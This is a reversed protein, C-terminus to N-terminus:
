DLIITPDLTAPLRQSAVIDRNIVSRIDPSSVDEGIALKAAPDGIIVYSRADNYATWLHGLKDKKKRAKEQQEKKAQRDEEFADILNQRREAREKKSLKNTPAEDTVINLQESNAVPKDGYHVNGNDDVWKYIEAEATSASLVLFTFIIISTSKHLLVM